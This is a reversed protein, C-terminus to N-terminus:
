EYTTDSRFRAGATPRIRASRLSSGAAIRFNRMCYSPAADPILDNLAKWQYSIGEQRVTERAQSWFADKIQVKQMFQGVGQM